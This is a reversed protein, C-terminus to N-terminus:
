EIAVRFQVIFAITNFDIMMSSLGSMLQVAWWNREYYLILELAM